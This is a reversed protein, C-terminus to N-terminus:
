TPPTRIGYHAHQPCIGRGTWFRHTRTSLHSSFVKFDVIENSKKSQCWSTNEGARPHLYITNELSTLFVAIFEVIILLENTQLEEVMKCHSVLIYMHPRKGLRQTDSAIHPTFCATSGLEARSQIYIGKYCSQTAIACPPCEVLVRRSHAWTGNMPM